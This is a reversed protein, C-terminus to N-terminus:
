LRWWCQCSLGLLAPTAQRVFADVVEAVSRRPVRECGMPRAM